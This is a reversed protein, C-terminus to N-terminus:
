LLTFYNSPYSFGLAMLSVTIEQLVHNSANIDGLFKESIKCLSTLLDAFLSMNFKM